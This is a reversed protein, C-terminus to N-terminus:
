TGFPTTWGGIAMPAIGPRGLNRIAHVMANWCAGVSWADMGTVIPALMEQILRATALDAYTYGIGQQGGADIEVLVLTTTNWAYTGDAEPRDTPVTYASVVVREVAPAEDRSM